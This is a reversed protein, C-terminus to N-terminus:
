LGEWIHPRGRRRMPSPTSKEGTIAFPGNIILMNLKLVRAHAADQDREMCPPTAGTSGGGM